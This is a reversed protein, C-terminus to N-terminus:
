NTWGLFITVPEDDDQAYSAFPSFVLVIFLFLRWIPMQNVVTIIIFIGGCYVFGLCYQGIAAM